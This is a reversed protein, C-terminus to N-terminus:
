KEEETPTAPKLLMPMLLGRMQSDPQFVVDERGKPNEAIKRGLFDTAATNGAIAHCMDYYEGLTEPCPNGSEDTRM